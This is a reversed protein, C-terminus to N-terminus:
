AERAAAEPDATREQLKEEWILRLIELEETYDTKAADQDYDLRELVEITFNDGGQEQWEKQLKKNPHSGMKLQFRFRNHLANLDAAAYLYSPGGSRSAIRFVGMDPRHNKYQGKLEKKTAM